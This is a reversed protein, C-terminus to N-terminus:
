LNRYNAKVPCNGANAVYYVFIRKEGTAVSIVAVAEHILPHEMLVAAIEGLEIRHGNIKVQDDKRGLVEIAYDALYRARDGTKFLRSGECSSFCNPIFRERILQANNLYGKALGEGAIHLEGIVGVPVLQLSTDLIYLQTNAIPIGITILAAGKEIKNVASWITTETPGYMNWLSDVRELLQDALKRPLQEGGCLAKLRQDGKWGTDLLLQWTSPTAQMMSVGFRDITEGIMVPNALVNKDAIVVTAGVMLPLFLELAVIDFSISTVSLLKDEQKIGPERCM